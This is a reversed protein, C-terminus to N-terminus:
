KKFPIGLHTFFAEAEKKTKATSVLTISLGFIDRLDEDATEPFISHEKIGLTMNGMGDVSTSAIGRFDKTRPLAIHILKDLFAYMRTGRLTVSLGVPDGTRIKFSAVSKKAGRLSPKQGTIKALRERVKDARDRDKKMGSGIGASVVMKTLRPVALANTYGFAGMASYAGKEKTKTTYDNM